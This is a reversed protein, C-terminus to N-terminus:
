TPSTEDRLQRLRAGRERREHIASGRFTRRVRCQGARAATDSRIIERPLSSRSARLCRQRRARARRAPPPSREGMGRSPCWLQGTTRGAFPLIPDRRGRCHTGGGRRRAAEEFLPRSYPPARAAAEPWAHAPSARQRCRRVVSSNARCHPQRSPRQTRARFGPMPQHRPQPALPAAAAPCRRRSCCLQPTSCRLTHSMRRIPSSTAVVRSSDSSRRPLVRTRASTCNSRLEKGRQHGRQSPSPPSLLTRSSALPPPDQRISKLPPNHYRSVGRM